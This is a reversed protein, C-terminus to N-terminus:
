QFGARWGDALCGHRSSPINRRPDHLCPVILNSLVALTSAFHSRLYLLIESHLTCVKTEMEQLADSERQQGEVAARKSEEMEARALQRASLKPVPHDRGLSNIRQQMEEAIEKLRAEDLGYDNM